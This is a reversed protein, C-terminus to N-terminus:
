KRKTFRNEETTRFIKANRRDPKHEMIKEILTCPSPPYSNHAFSSFRRMFTFLKCNYVFSEIIFFSSFFDLIEFAQKLTIMISIPSFVHQLVPQYTFPHLFQQRYFIEYWESFIHFKYMDNKRRPKNLEM